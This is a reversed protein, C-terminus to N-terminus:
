CKPMGTRKLEGLRGLDDVDGTLEVVSHLEGVGNCWMVMGDMCWIVMGDMCWIVMVGLTFRVGSSLRRAWFAAALRHRSRCPREAPLAELGSGGVCCGPVGLPGSPRHPCQPPQRALTSDM